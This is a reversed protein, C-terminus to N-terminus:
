ANIKLVSLLPQPLAYSFTTEGGGEDGENMRMGEVKKESHRQGEKRLGECIGEGGGGGERGVGRGM